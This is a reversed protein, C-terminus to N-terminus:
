RSVCCIYIANFNYIKIQTIGHGTGGSKLFEINGCIMNVSYIYMVNIISSHIECMPIYLLIIKDTLLTM